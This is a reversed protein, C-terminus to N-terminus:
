AQSCRHSETAKTISLCGGTSAQARNLVATIAGPMKQLRHAVPLQTSRETGLAANQNQSANLQQRLGRLADEVSSESSTLLREDRSPNRVLGLPQSFTLTCAIQSKWAVVVSTWLCLSCNRSEWTAIWQGREVVLTTSLTCFTHHIVTKRYRVCSSRSGFCERQLSDPLLVSHEHHRTLTLRVLSSPSTSVSPEPWHQIWSM